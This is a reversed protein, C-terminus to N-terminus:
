VFMKQLLGKKFLETQDIQKQIAELKKDLTSLFNAIKQQEPFSPSIFPYKSFEKANIGPQGSRMSMKVVWKKFNYTMTTFFIFKPYAKSIRFRILFGAFYVDGDRAEYIYSRGTSAGTRAFLIDGEALKYALEIKGDPSTLPSPKFKRTVEDIDTIRIYKHVGDFSIAASNMGYSPIEAVDGLRKEEWDPFDAGNDQKFRLPKGQTDDFPSFIKQMVGRKYTELLAHKRRLHGLKKDVASLFTAIKQQEPLSPIVIKYPKLFEVNINKQAAATALYDMKPQHIELIYNLFYNHILKNCSLGILSDPCAMDQQLVGAYGINAAITILIAGKPFLKSVKLGEENLTQSFANIIGRSNVVDSTQVFPIHGGYYKPDNRPRPSFRGRQIKTVEDLRREEWEGLVQASGTSAFESFRLEPM